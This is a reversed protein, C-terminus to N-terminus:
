RAFNFTVASTRGRERTIMGLEELEECARNINVQTASADKERLALLIGNKSLGVGRDRAERLVTLVQQTKAKM